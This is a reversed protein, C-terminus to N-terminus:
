LNFVKSGIGTHRLLVWLVVELVVASVALVGIMKLDQGLYGIKTSLTNAAPKPAVKAVSKEPLKPTDEIKIPDDTLEATQEKTQVIPRNKNGTQSYAFNRKRQSKKKKAM